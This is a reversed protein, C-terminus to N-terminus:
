SVLHLILDILHKKVPPQIPGILTPPSGTAYINSLYPPPSMAMEGDIKPFFLLFPSFNRYNKKAMRVM